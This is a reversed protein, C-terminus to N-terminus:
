DSWATSIIRELRRMERGRWIPFVSEPLPRFAQVRECDCIGITRCWLRHWVGARVMGWRGRAVDYAIDVDPTFAKAKSFAEEFLEVVQHSFLERADVLRDEGQISIKVFLPQCVERRAGNKNAGQGM